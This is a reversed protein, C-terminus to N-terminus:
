AQLVVDADISELRGMRLMVSGLCDAFDASRSTM